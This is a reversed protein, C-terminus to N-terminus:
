KPLACGSAASLSQLSQEGELKQGSPTIWTPFGQIGATDCKATEQTCEVYNVYRFSNGFLAKQNACHSCWYAGYMAFGKQSLCEAFSDLSASGSKPKYLLYVGGAVIVVILIVLIVSYTKSKNRM